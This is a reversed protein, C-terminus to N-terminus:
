PEQEYGCARADGWCDGQAPAQLLAKCVNEFTLARISKTYLAVISNKKSLTYPNISNIEIMTDILARADAEDSALAQGVAALIAPLLSQLPKIEKATDCMGLYSSLARMGSVHVKSDACALASEYLVSLQPFHSKIADGIQHPLIALVHYAMEKKTIVDSKCMSVMAPILDPWGGDQVAFSLAGVVNALKRAMNPSTEAELSLLLQQKIAERSADSLKDWMEPLATRTLVAAM